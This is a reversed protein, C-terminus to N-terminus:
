RRNSLGVIKIRWDIIRIHLYAGGALMAIILGLSLVTEVFRRMPTMLEGRESPKPPFFEPNFEPHEQLLHKGYAESLMKRGCMPCGVIVSMQGNEM